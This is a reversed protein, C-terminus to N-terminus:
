AEMGRDENPRSERAVQAWGEVLYSGGVELTPQGDALGRPKDKSQSLKAGVTM